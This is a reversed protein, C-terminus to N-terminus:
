ETDGGLGNSLIYKSNEGITSLHSDKFIFLATFIFFVM